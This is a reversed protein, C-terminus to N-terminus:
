NKPWIQKKRFWPWFPGLREILFCLKSRWRHTPPSPRSMYWCISSPKPFMRAISDMKPRTFNSCFIHWFGFVKKFHSLSLQKCWEIRRLLSIMKIHGNLTPAYIADQGIKPHFNAIKAMNTEGMMWMLILPFVRNSALQVWISWKTRYFVCFPWADWFAMKCKPWTDIVLIGVGVNKLSNTQFHFKWFRHLYSNSKPRRIFNSGM